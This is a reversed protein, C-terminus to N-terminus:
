PGPERRTRDWLLRGAELPDDTRLRWTRARRVLDSTLAFADVPRRYHNFSHSLLAGMGEAGPVAELETPGHRREIIVVHALEVPRAATQAGLDAPVSLTEEEERESGSAHPPILALLRRASQSLALPKPYPDVLGTSYDICLAEDSVYDFGARLCGATLTSKGAGSTGPFAVAKGAHSVVGAHVAFSRAADLAERNIEAVLHALLPTWSAARQVPRDDVLLCHAPDEPGGGSVLALNRRGPVPRADGVFPLLLRTVESAVSEVEVRVRFRTGLVLFYQDAAWM